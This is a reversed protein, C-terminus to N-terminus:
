AREPAAICITSATSGTRFIPAAGARHVAADASFLRERFLREEDPHHGPPIFLTHKKWDIQIGSVNYDTDVYDRYWGFSERRALDASKLRERRHKLLDQFDARYM